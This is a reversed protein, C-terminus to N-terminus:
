KVRELTPGHKATAILKVKFAGTSILQPTQRGVAILWHDDGTSIDAIITGIELSTGTDTDYVGVPIAGTSETSTGTDFLSYFASIQQSDIGSGADALSFMLEASDIGAGIDTASIGAVLQTAEAGIGSDVGSIARALAAVDTGTGTDSSSVPVTEIPTPEVAVGGDASFIVRSSIVETDTGSDSTYAVRASIQDAGIGADTSSIPVSISASESGIGSETSTYKAALTGADAGVGSDSQAASFVLTGIESGTGTDASSPKAVETATDVGTGTDAIARALAPLTEVGSGTDTSFYTATLTSIESGTGSDTGSKSVAGMDLSQTDAGTGSDSSSIQTHLTEVATYPAAPPTFNSTWRAIGKSVRIEDMWGNFYSWPGTILDRCGILLPQGSNYITTTGINYTTGAQTGNIFWYLNTGSRVVAVHYWTNTAQSWSRAQQAPSTGNTTWTFYLTQNWNAETVRWAADNDFNYGAGQCILENDGLVNMRVWLDITFDGSGFDWDASDPTSLYDGSGDLLLSAGGFKSESTDIQANGVPTVTKPNTSADLFPTDCHLLLKTFNDNGGILNAESGVGSDTDNKSIAGGADLSHTDAGVGNDASSIRVVLTSIESGAGTDSSPAQATETATETTAGNADTQPYSAIETASDAGSGSDTSSVVPVSYAKIEIAVARWNNSTTFTCSPSTDQGINLMTSLASDGAFNDSLEAYGAEPTCGIEGTNHAAAFYAANNVADGFNALTLTVPAAAGGGSASQVIAGSGNTGTIDTNLIEAIQVTLNSQGSTLNGITTAGASPSAGMARFTTIRRNNLDYTDVQEWTLGNGSATPTPCPSTGKHNVTCLYLTNAKPTWSATAYTTGPSTQVEDIVPNGIISPAASGQIFDVYMGMFCCMAIRTSSTVQRLKMVPASTTTVSPAEAQTGAQWKWGTPYTGANTGAHFSSISLQAIAPNNVIGVSGAKPSTGSPAAHCVWPVVTLITSDSVIGALAYSKLTVDADDNANAASNRIQKPDSGAQIDAVGLPPENDVSSWLVGATGTGQRWANAASDAVPLLMVIASNGCWSNNAAGTSDNLAVDDVYLMKSGSGPSALWGTQFVAGAGTITQGSFSAVTVGDLRLEGSTIQTSANTVAQLEVRYYMGTVITATSDSGIQAGNVNNVLRLKGGSTVRAQLGLSATSGLIGTDAAPLAGFKVYARLYFTKSAAIAGFSAYAAVGTSGDCALCGDGSRENATDRTLTGSTAGGAPNEPGVAANRPIDVEYGVTSLRAM